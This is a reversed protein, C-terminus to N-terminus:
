QGEKNDQFLPPLCGRDRSEQADKNSRNWSKPDRFLFKELSAHRQGGGKTTRQGVALWCSRCLAPTCAHEPPCVSCPSMSTHLPCCLVSQKCNFFQVSTYCLLKSPQRLLWCFFKKLFGLLWPCETVLLAEGGRKKGLNKKVEIVSVTEEAPWCNRM